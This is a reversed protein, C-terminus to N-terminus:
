RAVVCVGDWPQPAVDFRRRKAGQSYRKRPPLPMRPPSPPLSEEIDDIACDYDLDSSYDGMTDLVDWLSVGPETESEDVETEDDSFAADDDDNDDEDRSAAPQALFHSWVLATSCVCLAICRPRGCTPTALQPRQIPQIPGPRPRIRKHCTIGTM